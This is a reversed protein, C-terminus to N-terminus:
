FPSTPDGQLGIYVLHYIPLLHYTLYINPLYNSLYYISSVHQLYIYVCLANTDLYCYYFLFMINLLEEQSIGTTQRREFGHESNSCHKLFAIM